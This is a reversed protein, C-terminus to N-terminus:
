DQGQIPGPPWGHPVRLVDDVRRVPHGIGGARGDQGKEAGAQGGVVFPLGAEIGHGLGVAGGFAGHTVNQGPQAGIIGNQALFIAGGVAGAAQGPDQIGDVAGTGEQAARDAPPHQDPQRVTPVDHIAQDVM